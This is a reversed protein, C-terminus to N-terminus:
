RAWDCDIGEARVVRKSGAVTAIMARRGHGRGRTRSPSRDRPKRRLGNLVM